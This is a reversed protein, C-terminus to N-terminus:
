ASNKLPKVILLISENGVISVIEGPQISENSRATWSTGKFEIRGDNGPGIYTVAKGTRGLIEDEIESNSKRGMMINKVWKRLAIISLLSTIVFLLLQTNLSIDFVLSAIAVVWAGVAFFFLIFGPLLFELIFFVFGLVFWVVAANQFKEM